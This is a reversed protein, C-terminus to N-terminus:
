PQRARIGEKPDHLADEYRERIRQRIPKFQSTLLGNGTTFPESAVIVRAVREDKESESNVSDLASAIAPADTGESHPSVVAVLETQKPCFIVCEAVAGTHRFREEIPRALVNKGNELVIVDDSRGHIYLYGDSDLHGRDGTRVVGDPLFIKDSAGSEAYTYAVNVPYDSRVCVVGDDDIIIEKGPMAKGVSGQRHARPHNKTAICTENLGYGEYMPLGADNFFRLTAPDAPASGTWLYRIRDGMLETAAVSADTGARVQSELYRRAADFFGPVGMVVTPRVASMVAFASQYTTITVDHGWRLASYIWYRQQLLALPLFVLLNDGRDHQFIEQVANLSSDISGVTAELGKPVGTSGSTFKVTTTEDPRYHVPELSAATDAFDGVDSLPRIRPDREDSPVKDAYLVTLDYRDLLDAAPAFKDPEFGATQVKLLLGALDLLAWELSNGALIGVRDGPRIGQDRLGNAVSRAQQYITALPVTRTGGIGAVTLEGEHRPVDAVIHNIVSEM